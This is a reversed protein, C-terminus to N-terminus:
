KKKTLLKLLKDVKREILMMKTNFPIFAQRFIKRLDKIEKTTLM